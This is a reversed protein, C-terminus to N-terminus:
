SRSPACSSPRGWGARSFVGRTAPSPPPSRRSAGRPYSRAWSSPASIPLICKSPTGSSSSPSTPTSTWGRRWPITPAGRCRSCRPTTGTSAGTRVRAAPRPDDRGHLRPRHRLRARSARRGADPALRPTPRGPGGDAATQARPLVFDCRSLVPGALDDPEHARAPDVPRREDPARFRRRGSRPRRHPPEGKAGQVRVCRRPRRAAHRFLDARHSHGRSSAWDEGGWPLRRRSCGRGRRSRRGQPADDPVCEGRDGGGPGRRGGRTDLDFSWPRCCVDRTRCM